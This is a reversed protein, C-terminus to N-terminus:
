KAGCTNSGDARFDVGAGCLMWEPAPLQGAHAQYFESFAAADFCGSRLTFGWSSAAWRVDLEPDPVLLVRPPGSPCASDPALAALWARAAALEDYCGDPCHYTVVVAGHELNHVWYGRPLAFDYEGFDAWTGYHEGSSPPNTAYAIESCAVVHVGGALAQQKTEAECAGAGAVSTAGAGADAGASATAGGESPGGASGGSGADQGDAEDAFGGSGAVFAERGGLGASDGGAAGDGGAGPAMHSDNSDSDACAAPLVLLSLVVSSCTLPLWRRCMWSTDVM